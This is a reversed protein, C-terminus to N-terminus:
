MLLKCVLIKKMYLEGPKGRMLGKVSTGNNSSMDSKMSRTSSSLSNPEMDCSSTSAHIKKAVHGNRGADASARRGTDIKSRVSKLGKAGSDTKPKITRSPSSQASKDSRWSTPSYTKKSLSEMASSTGTKKSPNKKADKVTNKQEKENSKQRPLKPKSESPATVPGNKVAESGNGSVTVPKPQQLLSRKRPLRSDDKLNKINDKSDDDRGSPSTPESSDPTYTPISHPSPSTMQVSEVQVVTPLESPPSAQRKLTKDSASGSQLSSDEVEVMTSGSSTDSSGNLDNNNGSVTVTGCGAKQADQQGPIVTDMAVVEDQQAECPGTKTPESSSLEMPSDPTANNSNDSKPPSNTMTTPIGTAFVKLHSEVALPTTDGDDVSFTRDCMASDQPVVEEVSPFDECVYTRDCINDGELNDSNPAEESTTKDDMGSRDSLEGDHMVVMDSFSGMTLCADDDNDFATQYPMAGAVDALHDDSRQGSEVEMNEWSLQLGSASASASTCTDTETDEPVLFDVNNNNNTVDDPFMPAGGQAVGFEDERKLLPDPLKGSLDDHFGGNLTDPSSLRDPLKDLCPVEADGSAGDRKPSQSSGSGEDMSWDAPVLFSPEAFTSDLGALLDDEVVTISEWIKPKFRDPSTNTPKPNAAELEEEEEEVVPEEEEYLLNCEQLAQEFEEPTLLDFRCKGTPTDLCSPVALFEDYEVDEEQAPELKGKPIDKLPSPTSGKQKTKRKVREPTDPKTYSYERPECTIPTSTTPQNKVESPFCTVSPLGDPTLDFTLDLTRPTRVYEPLPKVACSVDLEEEESSPSTESIDFTKNLVRVCGELVDPHNLPSPTSLPTDVDHLHLQTLDSLSPRSTLGRTLSNYATPKLSPSGQEPTRKSRVKEAPATEEPPLEDKAVTVTTAPSKCKSSGRLEPLRSTPKPSGPTKDGTWGPLVLKSQVPSVKKNQFLKSGSTSKARDSFKSKSNISDTSNKNNGQKFSNQKSGAKSEQFVQLTKPRSTKVKESNVGPIKSKTEKDSGFSRDSRPSLPSAPPTELLRTIGSPSVLNVKYAPVFIGHKPQCHFYQIGDITGNNKGVPSDLVIGCVCGQSFHTKGKFKLTGYRGDVTGVRQGILLNKSKTSPSTSTPSQSPSDDTNKLSEPLSKPAPLLSKRTRSTPLRSEVQTSQLSVFLFLCYKTIKFHVTISVYYAVILASISM